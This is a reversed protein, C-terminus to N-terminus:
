NQFESLLSASSNDTFLLKLWTKTFTELSYVPSTDKSKILSLKLGNVVTTEIKSRNTGLLGNRKIEREVFQEFQADVPQLYHCNFGAFEELKNLCSINQVIGMPTFFNNKIMYRDLSEKFEKMMIKANIVGIYEDHSNFLGSGSNGSIVDCDAGHILAEPSSPSNVHILLNDVSLNCKKQTITGLNQDFTSPTMTYAHVEENEIFANKAMLINKRDVMRELKIVAIDPEQNTQHYAQVVRSCRVSEEPQTLTRPFLVKMQKSCDSNPKRLETPICHSNTILFRGNVLTGSCVGLYYTSGQRYWFALKAVADPCRKYPEGCVVKQEEIAAKLSEIEDFVQTSDSKNSSSTASSKTSKGCGLLVLAILSMLVFKM